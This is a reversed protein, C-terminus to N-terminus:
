EQLGPVPIVGGVDAVGDNVSVFGVETVSVTLIIIVALKNPQISLSVRRAITLGNGTDSAPVLVANHLPSVM